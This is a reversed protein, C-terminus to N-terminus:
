EYWKVFGVIRVHLESTAFCYHFIFLFLLLFLLHAYSQELMMRTFFKELYAGYLSISGSRSTAASTSRSLQNELEAKEALTKQLKRFLNNSLLEQEAEVLRAIQLKFFFPVTTAGLICRYTHNWPLTPLYISRMGEHYHALLSVFSPIDISLYLDRNCSGILLYM